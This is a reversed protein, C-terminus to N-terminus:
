QKHSAMLLTLYDLKELASLYFQVYTPVYMLNGQLDLQAEMSFGSMRGCLDLAAVKVVYVASPDLGRLTASTSSSYVTTYGGSSSRLQYGVSYNGIATGYNVQSPSWTVNSTNCETGAVAVVGTPTGPGAVPLVYANVLLSHIWM